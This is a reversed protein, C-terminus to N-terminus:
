LKESGLGSLLGAWHPHNEFSERLDATPARSAILEFDQRARYRSQEAQDRQGSAIQLEALSALIQWRPWLLMMEEAESLALTLAEGAQELQDNGMLALSLLHQATPMLLRGDLMRLFEIMNGASRAARDYENQSLLFRCKAEEIVAEYFPEM